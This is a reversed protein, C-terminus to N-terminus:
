TRPPPLDAAPVLGHLVAHLWGTRVVVADRPSLSPGVELLAVAGTMAPCCTAAAHKSTGEDPCPPPPAHDSCDVVPHHDVTSAITMAWAPSAILAALGLLWALIRLRDM